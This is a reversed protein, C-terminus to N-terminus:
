PPPAPQLDASWLRLMADRGGSLLGQGDPQWALTFVSPLHAGVITKKLDFTEFDLIYINGDSAGVALEPRIPHLAMCRLAQASLQLSELSRFESLSWKSLRGDGGASLVINGSHLIAFVGKKHHQINRTQDAAKRQIFHLGGDMNGAIILQQEPIACLSFVRTEVSAVLRGNDPEDMSWEVIWGDGGASLIHRNSQGEALAYLAANHGTSTAIKKIELM